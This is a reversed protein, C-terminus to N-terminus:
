YDLSSKILYDILIRAIFLGLFIIGLVLSWGALDPSWRPSIFDFKYLSDPISVDEAKVGGHQDIYQRVCDLRNRGSFGTPQTRECYEQAEGYVDSGGQGKSAREAEVLREYRHKLQLPPRIANDGVALDTNMHAYVYKRLNKLATEVDGNQEDAVYVAERLKIM